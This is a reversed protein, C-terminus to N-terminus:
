LTKLSLTAVLELTRAIHDDHCGRQSVAPEIVLHQLASNEIGSM